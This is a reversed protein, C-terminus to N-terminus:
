DKVQSLLRSLVHKVKPSSLVQQVAAEFEDEDSCYQDTENQPAKVWAPYIDNLNNSSSLVTYRYNNLSPACIDLECT